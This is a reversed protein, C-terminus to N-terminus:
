KKAKRPPQTGAGGTQGGRVREGQNKDREGSDKKKKRGHKWTVFRTGQCPTKGVRNTNQWTIKKTGGLDRRKRKGGKIQHRL